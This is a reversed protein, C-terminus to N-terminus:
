EDANSFEAEVTELRKHLGEIEEKGFWDEKMFYPYGASASFNEPANKLFLNAYQLVFIGCEEGNTQQPVKPVLLPIKKMLKKDVPREETEYIDLVLRRILPELGNDLERLSNLLLICPTRTKSALTEGLHCFIVLYWHSWLVIPVLVYEKSFVNIRKIWTLVRKRYHDTTYMSFWICEMYTFLKRKEEPSDEWIKLFCREFLEDNIKGRLNSTTNCGRRSRSARFSRHVPIYELDDSDTKHKCKRKRCKCPSQLKEVDAEGYDGEATHLLEATQRQAVRGRSRQGHPICSFPAKSNETKEDGGHIEISKDM